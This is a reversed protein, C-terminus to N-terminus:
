RYWATGGAMSGDGGGSDQNIFTDTDNWTHPVGVDAWSSDDFTPSQTGAQRDASEPSSCSVAGCLFLAALAGWRRRVCPSSDPTNEHPM